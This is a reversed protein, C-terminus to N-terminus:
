SKKPEIFESVFREARQLTKQLDDSILTMDFRDEFGMEYEAKAIRKQINEETETNRHRLRLELEEMSKVKVFVALGRSGFYQKLRVGGKVDVDFLVHRGASWIREVESKLTGYFYGDYVEEWEVFDGNAMKKKFEEPSLFHYDRGNM